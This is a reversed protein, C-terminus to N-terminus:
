DLGVLIHSGAFCRRHMSIGFTHRIWRTVDTHLKTNNSYPATQLIRPHNPVHWTRFPSKILSASCKFGGMICPTKPTSIPRMFAASHREIDVRWTFLLNRVPRLCTSNHRGQISSISMRSVHRWVTKTGFQIYM